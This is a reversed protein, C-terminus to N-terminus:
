STKYPPLGAREWKARCTDRNVGAQQAAKSINGRHADLVRPLYERLFEKEVVEAAERLPLVFWNQPWALSPQDGDPQDTAAEAKARALAEFEIDKV